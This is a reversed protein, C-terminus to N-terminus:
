LLQVIEYKKRLDVSERKPDVKKKTALKARIEAVSLSLDSLDDKDAKSIATISGGNKMEAKVASTELSPPSPKTTTTEVKTGNTKPSVPVVPPPVPKAQKVVGDPVSTTTTTTIETTRSPEDSASTTSEKKVEAKERKEAGNELEKKKEVVPSKSNNETTTPTTPTKVLEIKPDIIVLLKVEHELAKIREM